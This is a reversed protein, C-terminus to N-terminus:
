EAPDREMHDPGLGAHAQREWEAEESRGRFALWVSLTGLPVALIYGCRSRRLAAGIQVSVEFCANRRAPTSPM